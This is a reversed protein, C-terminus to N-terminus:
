IYDLVLGACTLDRCARRQITCTASTNYFRAWYGISYVKTYQILPSLSATLTCQRIERECWCFFGSIIRYTMLVCCYLSLHWVQRMRNWVPLNVYLFLCSFLMKELIIVIKIIIIIVNGTRKKLTSQNVSAVDVPASEVSNWKRYWFRSVYIVLRYFLPNRRTSQRVKINPNIRILLFEM